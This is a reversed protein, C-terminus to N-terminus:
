KSLFSKVVAPTAEIKKKDPYILYMKGNEMVAVPLKHKFARRRAVKGSGILAKSLTDQNLVITKSTKMVM